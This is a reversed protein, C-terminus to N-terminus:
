DIPRVDDRQPEVGKRAYTLSFQTSSIAFVNGDPAEVRYSDKKGTREVNPLFLGNKGQVLPKGVNTWSQYFLNGQADTCIWWTSNTRDAYVKLVQWLESTHGSDESQRRAAEPCFPGPPTFGPTAAEAPQDVPETGGRSARDQERQREGLLFGGVMAM